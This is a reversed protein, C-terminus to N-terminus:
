RSTTSQATPCLTETAASTSLSMQRRTRVQQSGEANTGRKALYGKIEGNGQPSAVTASEAKIRKDDPSVQIAWAYNPKLMQFLAATMDGDAYNQARDLFQRRSIGRHM